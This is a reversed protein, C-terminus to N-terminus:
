NRKDYFVGDTALSEYPNTYTQNSKKQLSLQKMDQQIARKQKQLLQDVQQNLQVLQRGLAQESESFPPQIFKLLEDRQNLLVQIQEIRVDRDGEGQQLVQILENTAEYFTQLAEM